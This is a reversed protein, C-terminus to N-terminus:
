NHPQYRLSYYAAGTQFCTMAYRLRDFCYWWPSFCGTQRWEMSAADRGERERLDFLLLLKDTGLTFVFVPALTNWETSCGETTREAMETAVKFFCGFVDRQSPSEGMSVTVGWPRNINRFQKRTKATSCQNPQPVVSGPKAQSTPAISIQSVSQNISWCSHMCKCVIDLQNWYSRM